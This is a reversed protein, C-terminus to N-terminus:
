KSIRQGYSNWAGENQGKNANATKFLKACYHIENAFWFSFSRMLIDLLLIFNNFYYMLQVSLSEFDWVRMSFNTWVFQASLAKFGKKFNSSLMQRRQQHYKNTQKKKREACNLSLQNYLIWHSCKASNQVPPEWMTYADTQTNQRMLCEIRNRERASYTHKSREDREWEQKSTRLITKTKWVTHTNSNFASRPM